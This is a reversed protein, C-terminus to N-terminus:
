GYREREWEAGETNIKVLEFSALFSSGNNIKKMTLLCTFTLTEGSPNKKPFPSTGVTM